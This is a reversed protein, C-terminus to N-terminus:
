ETAVLQREAAFWDEWDTGVPKGRSLWRHYADLAVQERSPRRDEGM